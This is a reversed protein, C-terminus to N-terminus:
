NSNKNNTNNEKTQITQTSKDFQIDKLTIVTQEKSPRTSKQKRKTKTVIEKELHKLIQHLGVSSL